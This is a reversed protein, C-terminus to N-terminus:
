DTFSSGFDASNEIASRLRPYVNVWLEASTRSRQSAFAELADFFQSMSHTPRFPYSALKHAKETETLIYALHISMDRLLSAMLRLEASCRKATAVISDEQFSVEIETAMSCFANSQTLMAASLRSARRQWGCEEALILGWWTSSLCLDSVQDAYHCFKDIQAPGLGASLLGGGVHVPLHTPDPM